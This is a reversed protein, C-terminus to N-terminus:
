LYVLHSSEIDHLSSSATTKTTFMQAAVQTSSDDGSCWTDCFALNLFLLMITRCYGLDISTLYTPQLRLSKKKKKKHNIVWLEVVYKRQNMWNKLFRLLLWFWELSVMFGCTHDATIWGCGDEKVLSEEQLDPLGTNPVEGKCGSHIELVLSSSLSVSFLSLKYM